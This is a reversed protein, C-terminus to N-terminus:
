APAAGPQPGDADNGTSGESGRTMAEIVGIVLAATTDQRKIYYRRTTEISRHRLLNSCAVLDKTAEFAITAGSARLSHPGMGERRVDAQTLRAVVREYITARDAPRLPSTGRRIRAVRLGHADLPLAIPDAPLLPRRTAAEFAARFADLRAVLAAPVFMQAPRRGKGTFSVVTGTPRKEFSSWRLSHVEAERLCLWLMLRVLVADRHAALALTPEALDADIRALLRDAEEATLAPVAKVPEQPDSRIEASPDAAIVGASIAFRYFIRLSVLRSNRTMPAYGALDNWWRMVQLDTAHIPDIGRELFWRLNRALAWGMQRASQETRARRVVKEALVLMPDDAPVPLLTLHELAREYDPAPISPQAAKPGRTAPM